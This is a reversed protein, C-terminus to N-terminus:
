SSGLSGTRTEVSALFPAGVRLWAHERDMRRAHVVRSFVVGAVVGGAMALLALPLVAAGLREHLLGLALPVLVGAFLLAVGLWRRRRHTPCLGLEIKVSKRVILAVVVYILASVVILLYLAPPHWYVTRKLKFGQAPANCRVCRDPLAAVAGRSLVLADGDRWYAGPELQLSDVDAAPPAYPNLENLPGESSFKVARM